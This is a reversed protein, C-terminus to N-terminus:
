ENRKVLRMLFAPRNIIYVGIFIVSVSILMSYSFQENDLFGWITAVIPIFYTVTAGFIPSTDRILVYFLALAFASGFVALVAIYSLNMVWNPTHVASSIDSFLLYIIAIPSTLFFSLAAIQIGNMDKVKSVENSSFGYMLTALVVFLGYYNITMSGNYLLGAAGILGLFIGAIQTKIVQRKYVFIGLLLTFVPSLANLMGALSSSIRTEALPFLFAPIASGMLGILFISFINSRNLKSLNKLAIPLLCLFTILIRLSGVQLSSFSELGKKMLIYSTGWILSLLALVLWHWIKRKEAM